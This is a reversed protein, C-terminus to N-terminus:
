VVKLFPKHGEYEPLSNYIDNIGDQKLGSFFKVMQNTTLQELKRALEQSYEADAFSKVSMMVLLFILLKKM